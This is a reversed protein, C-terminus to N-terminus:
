ARRTRLFVAAIAIGLMSPVAAAEFAAATVHALADRGTGHGSTGEYVTILVSSCRM